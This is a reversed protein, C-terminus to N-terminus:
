DAEPSDRDTTDEKLGPNDDTDIRSYVLLDRVDDQASMVENRLRGELVYGCSAAVRISRANDPDCAIVVRRARLDEIAHRTVALVAERVYGRGTDSTRLWYAVAFSPVDPNLVSLNCGGLLRGDDHLFIGLESSAGADWARRNGAITASVDERTLLRSPWRMWRELEQRSAEVADLLADTDEEAFLRLLLRPTEIRDPLRATV